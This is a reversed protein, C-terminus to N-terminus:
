FEKLRYRERYEKPTMGMQKKFVKGFYSQSPFNVYDGIAAINEESYRLLNAAREVRVQVIYDQLRMNMDKSFVRSLYSPSIKLKEAIDKLYIKERYCNGIYECAAATYSSKVSHKKRRVRETLDQIACNRGAILAPIDKCDDSKQIHYDSIRYAEAPSLGGEISARTCLAIAVTVLKRWHTLEDGSLKGVDRDMRMALELAEKTKGERVCDLLLKEERYTHHYEEENEAQFEFMIKDNEDRGRVSEDLHNARLIEEDSFQEGLLTVAAIGLFAMMEHFTIVPLPKEMGREMGYFRYYRHLEIMEMHHLTFPGMFFYADERRVCAFMVQNQDECLVPEAQMDAIKMLYERLGHNERIPNYSIYRRLDWFRRKSYCTIEIGQMRSLQDLAYEFNRVATKM